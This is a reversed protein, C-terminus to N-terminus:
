PALEPEPAPRYLRIDDFLVMGSGGAQLNNKDGFGISITNVNALNVGQAAFEQLDIPWETWEEILAADPNDHYVTAIGNLNVYMREAANSVDGSFWLSLVGVGEETWDRPYVLTMTIESYKFNNEYYVPMSQRGGHVNGTEAFPPEAHGALSGNTPVEWGDIWTSFIEDPPYDNYDEIDDIGIFDAVTFSWVNGKSITADTNYEDVRWYYPGGGWEVGEAPTYITVGQRGRYIGTTDSSDADAVADRDASFYVDHGSANDGPSWSLPTADRIYLTSGPSPSPSWALLPDGRMVLIIEEQTLAKDYIRVDDLDGSIPNGSGRSGNFGGAESNAGIFGFRTNGSGFTSGGSASPEPIGDIYITCRGNDFVGCVHHWRGDDVRSISGNDVQESSTMVDWGVQGPGGGNGNIELRWYENRDFSIIYQDSGSSTRIWSCVTVETLDTRDYSLNQIAVYDGPTFNLSAGHRGPIAWQPGFLTGHNSHGSWDVATTGSDEDLKWWAVLTPDTVAIEPMTSFSWVDGEIWQAGDFIDVRWYYMTELALPGPDFVADMVPPAGAGNTVTEVDTGFYVEYMVAKWRATWSLSMGPLVFQQGDAPNPDHAKKPPVWFSWVDGKWPSDDNADNIEDVRWYYTTGPVLGDPYSFGLFGIVLNTEALNGQFTSEAGDNVDDFNDGFYVDHSVAFAGPRWRLNAWTNEYLSGDEPEPRSANPNAGGLHGDMAALIEDETLVHNWVAVEDLSGSFAGGAGTNGLRLDSPTPYISRGAECIKSAKLEGNYYGKLERTTGDFTFALHYWEDKPLNDAIIIDGGNWADDAGHVRFWVGGEGEDRSYVAWGPVTTYNGAQQGIPREFTKVPNLCWYSLTMSAGLDVNGFNVYNDGGPFELATGVHGDIWTVNGTITGDWAGTSDGVTTGGGEDMSWYAVLDASAVGATMSLLLVFSILYALKRCM